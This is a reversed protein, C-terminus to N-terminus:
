PTVGPLPSVPTNPEDGHKASAHAPGMIVPEVKEGVRRDASANIVVLTTGDFTTNLVIWQRDPLGTDPRSMEQMYATDVRRSTIRGDVVMKVRDEFVARRPLVVHQQTNAAHVTAAVFMGPVLLQKQESSQPVVVYALFTRTNPDDSPAIRSVAGTWQCDSGNAPRIVSDSGVAVSQRAMSPLRIPVEIQQRSVVRAIRQGATVNEGVEIDIADLEGDIPSRIECRQVNLQARDLTAKAAAATAKLEQRRPALSDLRQETSIVTQSSRLYDRKARDVDQPNTVNREFLGRVREYESESIQQEEKELALRQKLKKEEVDIQAILANIRQLEQRASEATHEFEAPDLKALLDGQKVTVGPELSDDVRVVTSTVRAPVDASRLARATGFGRWQRRVTTSEAPIVTVRPLEDLRSSQAPEPKTRRLAEYVGIAAALLVVCVVARTTVALWLRKPRSTTKSSGTAM